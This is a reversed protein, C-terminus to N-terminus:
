HLKCQWNWTVPTWIQIVEIMQVGTVITFVLTQIVKHYYKFMKRYCYILIQDMLAMIFRYCLYFLNYDDNISWFEPFKRVVNAYNVRYAYKWLYVYDWYCQVWCLAYFRVFKTSGSFCDKLYWESIFKTIQRSASCYNHFFCYAFISFRAM